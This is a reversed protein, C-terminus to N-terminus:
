VVLVGYGDFTRHLKQSNNYSLGNSVVTKRLTTLLYHVSRKACRTVKQTKENLDRSSMKRPTLNRSFFYPIQLQSSSRIKTVCFRVLAIKISLREAQSKSVFHAKRNVSQSIFCLSGSFASHPTGLYCVTSSVLTEIHAPLSIQPKWVHATQDGSGTLVLDQTPHFRLSNM